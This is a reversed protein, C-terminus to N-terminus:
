KVLGLTYNGNSGSIEWDGKGEDSSDLNIGYFSPPNSGQVRQSISAHISKVSGPVDVRDKSKIYIKQMAGDSEVILSADSDSINSIKSGNSNGTFGLTFLAAIVLYNKINM